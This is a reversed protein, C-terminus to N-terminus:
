EKFPNGFNPHFKHGNEFLPKLKQWSKIDSAKPAKFASGTEYMPGSCQPCVVEYELTEWDGRKDQIHKHKKFVKKCDLCAYGVTIDRKQM